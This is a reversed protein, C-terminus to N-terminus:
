HVVLIRYTEGKTPVTLVKDEWEIEENKISKQASKSSKGSRRSTADFNEGEEAAEIKKKPVRM